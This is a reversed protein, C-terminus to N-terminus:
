FAVGITTGFRVGFGDIFGTEFRDESGTDEYKVSTSIYAPGAFLDLSIREGFLWQYGVLLGGGIGTLTAKAEENKTLFTNPDTDTYETKLTFSQYRIFPTLHFGRMREGSPYYRFEPTIGFGSLQTDGIKGGFTYFFNLQGSINDSFAREYTLSLTRVVPSFL